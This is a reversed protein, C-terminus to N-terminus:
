GRKKKVQLIGSSSDVIEVHDGRHLAAGSIEKIAYKGVYEGEVMVEGTAGAPTDITVRASQGILDGIHTVSTSQQRMVLRLLAMVSRGALLAVGLAALLTIPLSWGSFWGLLGVAGFVALFAAVVTFGFESGDSGIDAGDGLDGGLFITYLFYAVGLVTFAGFIWPIFTSDMLKGGTPNFKNYIFTINQAAREGLKQPLEALPEGIFGPTNYPM